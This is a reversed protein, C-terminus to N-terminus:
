DVVCYFTEPHLGQVLRILPRLEGRHDESSEWAQYADVDDWESVILYAEQQHSDRNRALSSTVLAPSGDLIQPTLERYVASVQEHAQEGVQMHLFTIVSGCHQHEEAM